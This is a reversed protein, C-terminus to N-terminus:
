QKNQKGPPITFKIGISYCVADVKLPGTRLCSQGPFQLCSQTCIWSCIHKKLISVMNSWMLFRLSIYIEIRLTNEQQPHNFKMNKKHELNKNMTKPEDIM